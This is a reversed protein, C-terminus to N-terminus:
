DIDGYARYVITGEKIAKEYLNIWYDKVKQNHVLYDEIHHFKNDQFYIISTAFRDEYFEGEISKVMPELVRMRFWESPDFAVYGPDISYSKYYKLGLLFADKGRFEAMRYPIDRMFGTSIVFNYVMTYYNYLFEEGGKGKMEITKYACDVIDDHDAYRFINKYTLNLIFFESYCKIAEECSKHKCLLLKERLTDEFGEDFVKEKEQVRVSRCNFNFGILIFILFLNEKM